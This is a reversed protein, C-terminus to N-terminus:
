KLLEERLYDMAAVADNNRQWEEVRQADAQSALEIMKKVMALSARIAGISDERSPYIDLSYWGDYGIRQLTYFLEFTEWLNVSGVIMDDDWMKYSDNLHLHFLKGYRDALVASEAVNEYAMTAHGLDIMVGVNPAETELAVLLTKGITAMCIHTRPEKNKYEIAVRIDPRHSAIMRVADIMREWVQRYDVQMPYDFGDQGPWLSIQDCSLEAATDMGRCALAIAEERLGDDRSSLAGFRWKPSTYLDVGLNALKLGARDLVGAVEEPREFELPYVLEIGTVDTLDAIMQLKEALSYPDQRYGAIVFRDPCPYFPGCFCSLGMGYV